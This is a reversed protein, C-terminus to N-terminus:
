AAWLPSVLESDVVLELEDEAQYALKLVRDLKARSPKRQFDALYQLSLHFLEIATLLREGSPTDELHRYTEFQEELYALLQDVVSNLLNPAWFAERSAAVLSLVTNLTTSQDM